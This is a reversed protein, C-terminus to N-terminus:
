QHKALLYAEWTTKASTGTQALRNGAHFADFYENEITHTQIRYERQQIRGYIEIMEELKLVEPGGLDPLLGAAPREALDVLAQAVEPVDIARFYTGEPISVVNTEKDSWENILSLVYDYFQTVRVISWPLGSEEIVQEAKRKAVFYSFDSQEVGAISIYVIKPSGNARAIEVLKKAGEIDSSYGPEFKSALHLVTDVGQLAEALGTGERLDGQYVTVGDPVIPNVARTYARVSHQRALLAKVVSSGLNGTAGTVLITSM